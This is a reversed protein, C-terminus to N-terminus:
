MGERPGERPGQGGGETGRGDEGRAVRWAETGTRRAPLKDDDSDGSRSRAVPRSNRAIGRELEATLTRVIYNTLEMQERQDEKILRHHEEKPKNERRTKKIENMVYLLVDEPCRNRPKGHRAPDRVYRRTVDTAGDTSFAIVYSM